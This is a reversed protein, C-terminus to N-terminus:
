NVGRTHNAWYEARLLRRLIKGSPNRPLAEAFDVSKPVKYGAIQRRAWDRVDQESLTSATERVVVAKVAEGWQEDPIGIVAVERVDPHNWIANEVEAPYVNEGGSIIMDSIRDQLYLYGDSDIYGADGSRFYGDPTFSGATVEAMEWYGSMATPSRIAIEGTVGCAAHSGDANLIVIDVDALPKGASAMRPNGERSHDNPALVAITGCMETMGYQQVFLCDFVDIAERLLELPMPSGGYVITRIRGYDVERAREHKLIMRISAPVAFIKSLGAGAILDIVQGADFEQAVHGTAGACLTQLGFGTGGIHFQPMVLLSVDDDTWRNWEPQLEPPLSRFALLARHSLMAGKPRGTTGSTYLQVATADPSIDPLTRPPAADRWASYADDLAIVEGEGPLERARAAYEPTAFIMKVRANGIIWRLEDDALRWNLPVCIAGMKAAGILIEFFTDTNKGIYGIHDGRGISSDILAGAVGDSRQNLAQYSIAAGNCRLALKDGYRAAQGRAMDGITVFRARSAAGSGTEVSGM